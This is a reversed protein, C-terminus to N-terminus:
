RPMVGRQSRLMIFCMNRLVENVTTWSKWWIQEARNPGWVAWHGNEPFGNLGRQFGVTAPLSAISVGAPDKRRRFLGKTGGSWHTSINDKASMVANRRGYLWSLYLCSLWLFDWSLTFDFISIIKFVIILIILFLFCPLSWVQTQYFPLGSPFDKSNVQQFIDILHGDGAGWSAAPAWFLAVGWVDEYRKM